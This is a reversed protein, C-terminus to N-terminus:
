ESVAETPAIAGAFFRMEIASHSLSRAWLTIMHGDLEDPAYKAQDMMDEALASLRTAIANWDEPKNAM